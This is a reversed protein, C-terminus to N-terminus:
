KKEASEVPQTKKQEEVSNNKEDVKLKKDNNKKMIMKKIFDKNMQKHIKQDIYVKGPKVFGKEKMEESIKKKFAEDDINSSSNGFYIIAASVCVFVIALIIYLKKMMEGMFIGALINTSLVKTLNIYKRVTM